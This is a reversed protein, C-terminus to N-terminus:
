DLKEIENDELDLVNLNEHFCIGSLDNISNFSAYLESLKPMGHIGSIDEM